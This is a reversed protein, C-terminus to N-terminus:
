FAFAHVWCVNLTVVTERRGLHAILDIPSALIMLSIGLGHAVLAHRRIYNDLPLLVPMHIIDLKHVNSLDLIKDLVPQRPLM